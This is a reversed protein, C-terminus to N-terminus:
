KKDKELEHMIFGGMILVTVIPGLEPLNINCGASLGFWTGQVAVFISVVTM